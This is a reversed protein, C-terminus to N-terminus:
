DSLLSRIVLICIVCACFCLAMMGLFLSWQILGVPMSLHLAGAVLLSMIGLPCLATVLSAGVFSCKIFLAVLEESFLSLVGCVFLFALFWSM